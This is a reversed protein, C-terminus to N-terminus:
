PERLLAEMMLPYGGCRCVHGSLAQAVQEASPQPTRSFLAFLEVLIGPACFGCQFAHRSELAAAIDQALPEAALAGATLIHAGSLTATLRLCSPTARADILVTCAGCAGERCGWKVDTLGLRHRLTDLLIEGPDVCLRHLRGNVTFEVRM